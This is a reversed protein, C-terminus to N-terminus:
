LKVAWLDGWLPPSPFTARGRPAAQGEGSTLACCLEVSCGCVLGPSTQVCVFVPVHGLWLLTLINQMRASTVPWQRQPLSLKLNQKDRDRHEVWAYVQGRKLIAELGASGWMELHSIELDWGALSRGLFDKGSREQQRTATHQSGPVSPLLGAQEPAPGHRTIKSKGTHTNSCLRAALERWGWDWGLCPCFSLYEKSVNGPVSQISDLYLADPKGKTYWNNLKYKELWRLVPKCIIPM